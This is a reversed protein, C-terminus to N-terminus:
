WRALLHRLINQCQGKSNKVILCCYTSAENSDNAVITMPNSINSTSSQQDGEVRDNCRSQNSFNSTSSHQDDTFNSNPRTYSNWTTLYNQLIILKQFVNWSFLIIGISISLTFFREIHLGKEENGEVFTCACFDCYEVNCVFM